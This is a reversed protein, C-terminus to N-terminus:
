NEEGIRTEDPQVTQGRFRTIIADQGILMEQRDWPNPRHQSKQSESESGLNGELREVGISEGVVETGPILREEPWRVQNLHDLIATFIAGRNRLLAKRRSKPDIDRLPCPPQAEKTPCGARKTTSLPVRSLKM